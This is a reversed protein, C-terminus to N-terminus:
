PNSWLMRLIDLLSTRGEQEQDQDHEQDKKGGVFILIM